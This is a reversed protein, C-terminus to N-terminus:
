GIPSDSLNGFLLQLEGLIRCSIFDLIDGILPQCSYRLDVTTQGIRDAQMDHVQKSLCLRFGCAQRLQLDISLQIIRDRMHWGM